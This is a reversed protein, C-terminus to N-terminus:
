NFEPTYLIPMHNGGFEFMAAFRASLLALHWQPKHLWPVLSRECCTALDFHKLPMTYSHQSRILNACTGFDRELPM